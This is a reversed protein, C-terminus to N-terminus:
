RGWRITCGKGVGTLGCCVTGQVREGRTNTAEFHRSSEGDACAAVDAGGLIADTLGAARLADEVRSDGAQCGNYSVFLSIAVGVVVAIGASWAGLAAWRRQRREGDRTWEELDRNAVRTM